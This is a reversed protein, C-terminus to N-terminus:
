DHFSALFLAGTTFNLTHVTWASPFAIKSLVALVKTSLRGDTVGCQVTYNISNSQSPTKNEYQVPNPCCLSARSGRLWLTRLELGAPPELQITVWSPCPRQTDGQTQQPEEPNGPKRRCDLCM